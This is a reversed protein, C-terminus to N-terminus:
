LDAKKKVVDKLSIQKKQLKFDGNGSLINDVYNSVERSFKVKSDLLSYAVYKGSKGKYIVLDSDEDEELLTEKLGTYNQSLFYLIKINDEKSYRDALNQLELKIVDEDDSLKSHKKLIVIVCIQKDKSTCWKKNSVTDKNLEYYKGKVEIQRNAYTSLFKEIQDINFTGKFPTGTFNWGNDLVILRPLENKDLKFKEIALNSSGANKIIGFMLKKSFRKSLAKILAPTYDKNTFLIVKFRKPNDRLFENYNDEDLVRVFSIMSNSAFTFIDKWNKRGKYEESQTLGYGGEGYFLIQPTTKVEFKECIENDARCSVYAIKHVGYSKSALYKWELILKELDKDGEKYFLVLWIEKRKVLKMYNKLNLRIVDTDNFYGEDLDTYLSSSTKEFYNKYIEDFDDEIEKTTRENKHTKLASEGESDYLKKTEPNVLVDYAKSIELFKIKDAESGGSRDPHYILALKKFAKKIESVTATPKLGLLNYYEGICESFDIFM